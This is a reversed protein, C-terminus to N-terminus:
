PVPAARALSCAHEQWDCRQRHLIVSTGVDESPLPAGMANNVATSPSKTTSTIRSRWRHSSSRLNRRSPIRLSSIDQTQSM